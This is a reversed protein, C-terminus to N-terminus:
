GGTAKIALRADQLLHLYKKMAEHKTSDFAYSISQTLYHIAEEPGYGYNAAWKEASQRRNLRGWELAARIRELSERGISDARYAWVAFVFPLGTHRKWIEALDYVYRFRGREAHAKDGIAVGCTRGQIASFREGVSEMVRLDCDWYERLLVMALGNSSR